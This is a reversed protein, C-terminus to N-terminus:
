PCFQVSLGNSLNFGAGGGAPDRYWFQFRWTQGAQIVGAPYGPSNVDVASAAAGGVGITEPPLRILSSGGVCRTGNGFPVAVANQGYFFLGPQGPPCSLAILVLNNSAVSNSGSFLMQAGAGVSNPATTCYTTPPNCAGPLPGSYVQVRGAFTAGGSTFNPSAVALERRTDGTADGLGAIALGFGLNATSGNITELLTGDLGSLIRVYGLGTSDRQDASAAVDPVGDGNWDGVASVSLGFRDGVALGDFQWLLAGNAGSRAQVYGKGQSLVQEQTAGVVFDERGDGNVDGIAAVARGFVDSTLPPAVRYLQAGTAGSYVFVGDSQSGVLIDPVGDLNVDGLRSLSLGFRANALNNGTLSYLLAGTQGSWVRVLGRNGNFTPASGAFESRGDGNLDGLGAVATGLAMSEAEGVVSRLTSGNVGSLVKVQGTAFFGSSYARAGVVIDQVGDGNVDGANALASGFEDFIVDGKVTYLVNGTAGSYVRVYGEENQFVPGNEIAGAAFDPRGDGNVDGLSTVSWGLRDHSGSGILEYTQAQAAQACALTLVGAAIGFRLPQATMMTHHRAQGPARIPRETHRGLPHKTGPRARRGGPEPPGGSAM